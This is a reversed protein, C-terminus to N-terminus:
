AQRYARLYDQGEASGAEQPDFDPVDRVVSKVYMRGSSDLASLRRLSYLLGGGLSLVGLVAELGGIGTWASLAWGALSGLVLMALPLVYALLYGKAHIGTDLGLKVTDGAAAGLGNTVEYVMGTGGPKCLGMAALGCKRCSQGGVLRVRAMGDQATLVLAKEAVRDKM